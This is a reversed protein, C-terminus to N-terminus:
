FYQLTKSVQWDNNAVRSEPGLYPNRLFELRQEPTGHVETIRHLLLLEQPLQISKVPRPEEDKNKITENALRGIIAFALRGRMSRGAEPYLKSLSYQFLTTITWMHYQHNDPYYVELCKSIQQAHDIDQNILCQNFAFVTNEEEQQILRKALDAKSASKGATKPAEGVWKARRLWLEGIIRSWDSSSVPFLSKVVDEYVKITLIDTLSSAGSTSKELRALIEADEKPTQKGASKAQYKGYDIYM